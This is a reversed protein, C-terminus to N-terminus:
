SDLAALKSSIYHRMATRDRRYVLSKCGHHVRYGTTVVDVARFAHGLKLLRLHFELEEGTDLNTDWGGADICIKRRYVLSTGHIMIRRDPAVHEWTLVPNELLFRRLVLPTPIDNGRRDFYHPLSYVAAATPHLDLARSLVVLKNPRVTDDDPLITCYEGTSLELGKNVAASLGAHEIRAYTLHHRDGKWWRRVLRHNVSPSGDNVVIVEYGGDPAQVAAASALAERLLRPRGYAPIIISAKMWDGITSTSPSVLAANM